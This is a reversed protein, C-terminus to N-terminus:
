KRDQSPKSKVVSTPTRVNSRRMGDMGGIGGMGSM